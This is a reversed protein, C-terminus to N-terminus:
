SVYEQVNDKDNGITEDSDSRLNIHHVFAM